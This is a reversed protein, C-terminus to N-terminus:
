HADHEALSRNLLDVTAPTHFSIQHGSADLPAGKLWDWPNWLLPGEVWDYNHM